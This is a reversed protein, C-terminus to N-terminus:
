FPRDASLINPGLDRSFPTEPRVELVGNEGRNRVEESPNLHELNTARRRAIAFVPSFLGMEHARSPDFGQGVQTGMLSSKLVWWKV